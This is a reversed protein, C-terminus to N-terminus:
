VSFAYGLRSLRLHFRESAVQGVFYKHYEPRQEYGRYDNSNERKTLYVVDGGRPGESQQKPSREYHYNSSPQPASKSVWQENEKKSAPETHVYKDHQEHHSTEGKRQPYERHGEFQPDTIRQRKPKKAQGGVFLM